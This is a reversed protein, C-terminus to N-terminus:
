WVQLVMQQMQYLLKAEDTVNKMKDLLLQIYDEKIIKVAEAKVIYGLDSSKDVGKGETKLWDDLGTTVEDAM